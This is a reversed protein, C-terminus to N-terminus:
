DRGWAANTAPRKHKGPKLVKAHGDSPRFLKYRLSIRHQDIILQKVIARTLIHQNQLTMFQTQPM